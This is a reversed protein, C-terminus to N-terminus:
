DKALLSYMIGIYTLGQRMKAKIAYRKLRDPFGMEHPSRM